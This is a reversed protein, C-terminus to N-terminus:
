PGSGSKKPLGGIGRGADPRQVAAPPTRRDHLLAKAAAIVREDFSLALAGACVVPLTALVLAAYRGASAGATPGPLPAWVPVTPAKTARFPTAAVEGLARGRMALGLLGFGLVCLPQHLPARFDHLPLRFGSLAFADLVWFAPVALVALALGRRGLLLAGLLGTVPLALPAGLLFGYRPLAHPELGIAVLASRNVVYGMAVAAVILM